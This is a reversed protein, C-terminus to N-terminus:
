QLLSSHYNAETLVLFRSLKANSDSPQIWYDQPGDYYHLCAEWCAQHIDQLYMHGPSCLRRYFSLTFLTRIHTCGHWCKGVGETLALGTKHVPCTVTMMTWLRSMKFCWKPLGIMRPFRHMLWIAQNYQWGLACDCQYSPQVALRWLLWM